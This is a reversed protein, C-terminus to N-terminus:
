ELQFTVEQRTYLKQKGKDMGVGKELVCAHLSAHRAPAARM